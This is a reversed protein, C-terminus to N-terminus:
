CRCSQIAISLAVHTAYQATDYPESDVAERTLPTDFVKDVVAKHFSSIVDFDYLSSKPM